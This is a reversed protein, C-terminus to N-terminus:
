FEPLVDFAISVREEDSQYPVTQHYLYSPFLLLLGEQPKILKVPPRAGGHFEEPPRGFEIWGAHEAASSDVVTPLKAYYVGSVWGGPHNHAVQHGQARLMVGWVTLRWSRPRYALYPHSPDTPLSQLYETVANDIIKEFVAFPGKPEVLLEETHGGFRTAGTAPNDILSPHARVHGILAANFEALGAFETPVEIRRRSIFRDFDVLTALAEYRGLESLAVSKFAIARTNLPMLQLCRECAQLAAEFEHRELLYGALVVHDHPSDPRLEVARRLAAIAEDLKGVEKLATALNYHADAYDPQVEAARRYAAIAEDRRGQEQWMAGLNSLAVVFNPEIELARQFATIAEGPRELSRLVNGLSTHYHANQANQSVARQILDLAVESQGVQDALVGLLHLADPNNADVQLVQRYLAEAEPLRGEGHHEVARSLAKAIDM